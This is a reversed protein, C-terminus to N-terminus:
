SSSSSSSIAGNFGFDFDFFLSVDVVLKCSSAVGFTLRLEEVLFAPADEEGLSLLFFLLLLFDLDL